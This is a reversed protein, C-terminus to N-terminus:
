KSDDYDYRFGDSSVDVKEEIQTNEYQFNKDQEEKTFVVKAKQKRNSKM